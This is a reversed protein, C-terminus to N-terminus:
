KSTGRTPAAAATPKAPQTASPTTRDLEANLWEAYSKSALVIPVAIIQPVDYPHLQRIAAELESYKDRRTKIQCQWEESRELKNQWQFVSDIPGVIQVCAALRRSVLESALHEAEDKRATTTLVHLLDSM